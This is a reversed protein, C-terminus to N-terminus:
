RVRRWPHKHRLLQNYKQILRPLYNGNKTAYRGYATRYYKRGRYTIERKAVRKRYTYTRRTKKRRPM